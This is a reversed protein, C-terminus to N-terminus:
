IKKRSCGTKQHAAYEFCTIPTVACINEHNRRESTNRTQESTRQFAIAVDQETFAYPRYRRGGWRSTGFQYRLAKSESENLQFVFDEPFRERNRM